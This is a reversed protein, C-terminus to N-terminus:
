NWVLHVMFLSDRIDIERKVILKSNDYDRVPLIDRPLTKRIYESSAKISETVTTDKIVEYFTHVDDSSNLKLEKRLKQVRSVFDRAIGEDVLSSDSVDCDLIVIVDGDDNVELNKNDTDVIRKIIIENSKILFGDITVDKGIMEQPLDNIKQSVSKLNKGIKKGVLSFDLSPVKKVTFRNNCNFSVQKVNLEDKIYSILKNLRKSEPHIIIVEALPNRLSILKKERCVRGLEIVKRMLAMDKEMEVNIYKKNPTPFPLFHVSKMNKGDVRRFNQYMHETFFPAFPAMLPCLTYLVEHLTSLANCCHKFKKRNFRIYWNTLEDIFKFLRPVITYLRYAKMEETVFKILSQLSALIWVDMTSTTTIKHIVFPKGEMERAKVTQIFFRYANYWPLLINTVILKVGQEKFKLSEGRVVPSDILYLRLADAGHNNIVETPDPYNKLRKAMKKGDEALVLGNVILNKFPTENFLATSIVLLTYFWGRTQDLGEAIFDAPFSKEFKEKGEFPYHQQAYPMSGSEFWCDFVEDIRRLVGKTKSLITIKDVHERHLDTLRVGSLQELEDISGVCIIEELDESVWLPIPTGWYRNRSINWDQANQLWNHFRKEQVVEPVWYSKKNNAMLKDIISEVKIFWSPVAKYLLPTESRWCFPYNHIINSVNVVRGKLKLHKIIEKDAAKVYQGQYDPVESTYVGSDDIPCFLKDGKNIIGNALCVRYDDAGFAPALHVIGTGSEDTVYDDAVIIFAGDHYNFVPIYKMGKLYTGPFTSIVQMEPKVNKKLIIYKKDKDIVKAYELNENVCLAINSPLTWPTTTWALISVDPEDVLPFSIIVAPDSVEKYNQNAEFNSLPTLCGTSYPMVKFGRYVFGKDFLQKFVWWVSEMFSPDMTKYDNKFDIWRGMRKVTKEWESSYRMVIGRCRNNYEPIGIKLVDDRTKIGYLKDIEYEIPLGHCDWGFRREVHFGNQHAFRTVTDKITGALLHGYHPLGTAFPPGDYFTYEPKGESMKLSTKFADIEDWYEVIKKEEDPFSYNDPVDRFFEPLPWPGTSIHSM